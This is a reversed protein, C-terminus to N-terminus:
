RQRDERILEASDTHTTKSLRTHWNHSIQKAEELSLTAAAAEVISKLEGQLSRHHNKARLKLRRIIVPEINRILLEGM